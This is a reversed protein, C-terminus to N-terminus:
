KGKLFQPGDWGPPAAPVSRSKGEIAARTVVPRGLIDLTFPIRNEKLCQAQRKKLRTGTLRHLEEHTLFMNSM